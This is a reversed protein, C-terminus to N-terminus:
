SSRHWALHEYVGLWYAWVGLMRSQLMIRRQEPFAAYLAGRSILFPLAWIVWDCKHGDPTM